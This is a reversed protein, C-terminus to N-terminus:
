VCFLYPFFLLTPQGTSRQPGPYARRGRRIWRVRLLPDERRASEALSIPPSIMAIKINIFAQGGTSLSLLSPWPAMSPSPSLAPKSRLSTLRSTVTTPWSKGPPRAPSPRQSGCGASPGMERLAPWRMRLCRTKRKQGIGTPVQQKTPGPCLLAAASRCPTLATTWLPSCKPVHM